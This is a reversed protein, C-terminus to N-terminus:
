PAERGNKIENKLKTARDKLMKGKTSYLITVLFFIELIEKIKKQIKLINGFNFNKFVFKANKFM